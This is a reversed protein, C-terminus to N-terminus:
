RRRSTSATGTSRHALRDPRAAPGPRPQDAHDQHRREAPLRPDARHRPTARTRALDLQAVTATPDVPIFGFIYLPDDERGPVTIYGDTAALALTTTAAAAAGTGRVVGAGLRRRRATGLPVSAPPRSSTGAASAPRTRNWRTRRSSPQYTADHCRCRSAPSSTRASTGRRASGSRGCSRGTSATSTASATLAAIPQADPRPRSRAPPARTSRPPRLRRATNSCRVGRDM